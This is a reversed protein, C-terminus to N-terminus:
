EVHTHDNIHDECYCHYGNCLSCYRFELEPNTVDTRGCVSCCHNYETKTPKPNARSQTTHFQVVKPGGSNAKRKQMRHQLKARLAFPLLNVIDGGAFLLFNALGVLPFLNHPFLNLPYTMNFVSSLVVLLYIVGMVWAKVPIIFFILFQADPNLVAFTLLLSLHLYFAMQAYIEVFAEQTVYYNGIIVPETPCFIMAFIDMLIVGTFYYLNFRFTGMSLEVHRGLNYFFYLFILSLFGGTQETFVYTVLRWVQGQLIKVKDFCLLDFLATGGNFMTMVTVLASGLVIYLMLNPIGKNRNKFCFREFRTRLSHM